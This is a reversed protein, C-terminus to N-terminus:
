RKSPFISYFRGEAIDKAVEEATFTRGNMCVYVGPELIQVQSLAYGLNLAGDSMDFGKLPTMSGTLVITKTNNELNAKLYKATDPMTYTGHTIIIKDSASEDIAKVLNERDTASLSRSDKMCVQTFELPTYLKISAFYEPLISEQRVVATDARGDWVSDITGGTILIHVTNNKAM